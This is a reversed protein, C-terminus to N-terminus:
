ERHFKVALIGQLLARHEKYGLLIALHTHVNFRQEGTCQAQLLRPANLLNFEVGRSPADVEFEGALSSPQRAGMAVHGLYADNADVLGAQALPLVVDGHHVVEVGLSEQKGALSAAELAHHVKGGVELCMIAIWGLDFVDALVHTCGIGLAHRQGQGIGLDAVVAGVDDGHGVLGHIPHPPLFHAGLRLHDLLGQTVVVALQELTQVPGPAAAQLRKPLQGLGQALAELRVHAAHQVLAAIRIHLGHVAQQLLGLSRGPPEPGGAVENGDGIQAHGLGLMQRDVRQLRRHRLRSSPYVSTKSATLNWM